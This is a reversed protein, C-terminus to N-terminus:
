IRAREDGLGVIGGGDAPEGAGGFLECLGAGCLPALVEGGGAGYRAYSAM